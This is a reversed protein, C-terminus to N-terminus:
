NEPNEDVLKYGAPVEFLAQNPESRDVRTVTVTQKGTRPDDRKELINLHLEDSYWIEDTVVVARGTGSVAAPITRTKLTGHVSLGDMTETGLDKEEVLSDRASVPSGATQEATSEPPHWTSQRALHTSPNLFTNLSTNPDFIHFAIIQPTGTFSPNVLQRRENYIRGQSDRAINAFSTRVNTSGDILLQTSQLEVVASLPVGQVPTVFIGSVIVAVGRTPPPKSTSGEQSFVVPSALTALSTVCAIRRISKLLM